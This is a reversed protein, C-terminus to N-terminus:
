RSVALHDDSPPCQPDDARAFEAELHHARPRRGWPTARHVFPSM